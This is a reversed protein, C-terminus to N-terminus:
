GVPHSLQCFRCFLSDFRTPNKFQLSLDGPQLPLQSLDLFRLTTEFLFKLDPGILFVRINNFNNIAGVLLM